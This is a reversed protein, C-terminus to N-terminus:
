TALRVSDRQTSKAAALAEEAKDLVRQYDPHGDFMAIGISVTVQYTASFPTRVTLAAITTRLSEALQVASAEDTEVLLAGLREDGLRFLFDAARVLDSIAQAIQAMVADSGNVGLMRRVQALDDLELLLLAFTTRNRMALEVERRAATPFYRRSLLQTAQDNVENAQWLNDFMSGLLTKVVDVERSIRAMMPQVARADGRASWLQPLLEGEIRATHELLRAMEPEKTFIISAKHKLWVGFPSDDLKPPVGDTSQGDGPGSMSRILLDNIWEMLQTKQREREAKMNQGLFFLHYTEESRILRAASSAYAINMMEIALDITENCYEIAKALATRDFDGGVLLRSMERKIVRAGRTVLDMPVGIRAHIEGTMRQLEFHDAESADLSFLRRIWDAMSAHLRQNVIGNALMREGRPDTLIEAYFLDSLRTAQDAVLSQVVKRIGTGPRGIADRWYRRLIGTGIPDETRSDAGEDEQSPSIPQM